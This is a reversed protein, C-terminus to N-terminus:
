AASWAKRFAALQDPQGQAHQRYIDAARDNVDPLPQKRTFAPASTCGCDNHAKFDATHEKYVVGRGALLACFACPHGDTVRYWGVAVPDAAVTDLITRRGGDMAIRSATGLTTSLATGPRATDRSLTGPGSFGFARTMWEDSPAEALKVISPPTQASVAQARATRYFVAAAAASQAHYSTVLLRMAQVWAPFTETVRKADFLPWLRIVDKLLQARVAIQVTRASAVLPLAVAGPPNQNSTM